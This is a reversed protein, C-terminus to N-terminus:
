FPIRLDEGTTRWYLRDGEEDYRVEELTILQDVALKAIVGLDVPTQKDLWEHVKDRMLMQNHNLGMAGAPEGSAEQKNAVAHLFTVM